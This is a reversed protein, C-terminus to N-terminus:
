FWKSSKRFNRWYKCKQSNCYRYFCPPKTCYPKNVLGFILNGNAGLWVPDGASGALSTDVNTLLGETVVNAMGNIAVTADLLGMTKSSTAESTNSALGVIM